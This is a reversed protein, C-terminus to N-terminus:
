GRCAKMGVKMGHTWRPAGCEASVGVSQSPLAHQLAGRCWLGARWEQQGVAGRGQIGLHEAMGLQQVVVMIARWSRLM